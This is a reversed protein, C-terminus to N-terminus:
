GGSLLISVLLALPYGVAVGLATAAVAATAPTKNARTREYRFSAFIGKLCLPLAVSMVLLGPRYWLALVLLMQAMWVWNLVNSLRQAAPRGILIPLTRRGAARDREIDCANNVLMFQTVILMMPISRFLVMPDIQGTLGAYVGLPVLGGLSFGALPEGIPLHSTPLAGWSYTIAILGGLLGIWAPLLGARYVVYCGMLAAAVLLAISFRLVFVPDEVQHYALPGDQESVVNDATDAGNVYDFYDNLSATAANMLSPILLLLVALVPSVAGQAEIALLLGVVAPALGTLLVAAPTTTDIAMRLTVRKASPSATANTKTSM